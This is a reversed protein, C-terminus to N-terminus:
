WGYPNDRGTEKGEDLESKISKLAESKTDEDMAGHQGSGKDSSAEVKDDWNHNNIETHKNDKAAEAEYGRSLIVNDRSTQYYNEVQDVNDDVKLPESLVSRAPDVLVMLDVGIGKLKLMSALKNAIVGGQSYGYLVITEGEVYNDVVDNYATFLVTQAVDTNYAKVTAGLGNAKSYAKVDSEISLITNSVGKSAVDGGGFLLVKELGELEIADILRNESFAYPSNYAYEKFLPDVSLFRGLRTYHIRYKFAYSNGEGVMEDDGEQGQFSFRYGDVGPAQYTRSPMLMGFPYYDTFSTYAVEFYELSGTGTTSAAIKRDSITSLINGLHNCYFSM